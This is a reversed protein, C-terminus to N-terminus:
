KNKWNIVKVQGHIFSCKEGYRCSGPQGTFHRCLNTKYQSHSPQIGHIKPNLWEKKQAAKKPLLEQLVTGPYLLNREKADTILLALNSKNLAKANGLIILAKKARTLAVNLRRYENLFGINNYPNARVCSILIIDCEGGQFGDVTNVTLQPFLTRIRDNQAKYFTIVGVRKNIDINQEQLYSLIIQISNIEAENMFSNGFRGKKEQGQIDIFSYPALFKPLALPNLEVSSHCQLKGKYFAQSPFSCIAPHMRYQITLMSSPIGCDKNLREMMSRGFKLKEAQQSFITAPLQQIDGVLLCKDPRARLPITTEAEPSQGAEDIILSNVPLMNKLRQQGLTSLTGFIILHPNNLLQMELGNESSDHAIAELKMQLSSYQTSLGSLVQRSLSVMEPMKINEENYYEIIEEWDEISQICECYLDLYGQVRTNVDALDKFCSLSYPSVERVFANFAEKKKKLEKCASDLRNKIFKFDGKVLEQLQLKWLDESFSRLAQIQREGWLDFFIKHLSGNEPLKKEVGILIMPVDPCERLCIEALTQTGKNSSASVLVRKKRKALASLVMGLTTTKGTGPPGQIMKFGKKMQLFEKVPQYQSPNLPALIKEEEETLPALQYSSLDKGYCITQELQTEERSQFTTCSEFMRQLTILSGISKAYWRQDMTFAEPFDERFEQDVVIKLSFELENGASESYNALAIFRLKKEESHILVFAEGARFEQGENKLIKFRIEGPNESNRPPKFDKKLSLTLLPVEELQELGNKLIVRAEEFILEKFSEFYEERSSFFDPLEEEDYSLMSKQIQKLNWNLVRKNFVFIGEEFHQYPTSANNTKIVGRESPLKNSKKTWFEQAIEPNELSCKIVPIEEVFADLFVRLRRNDLSVWQNKYKVVRIPPIQEPTISGDALQSTTDKLLTGDSFTDSVASQSFAITRTQMKDNSRISFPLLDSVRVKIKPTLTPYPFDEEGSGFEIEHM